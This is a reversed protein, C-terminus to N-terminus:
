GHNKEMRQVEIKQLSNVYVLKNLPLSSLVAMCKSCPKSCRGNDRMIFLTAGSLGQKAKTCAVIEAHKTDHNAGFAIVSGGRVLVAALKHHSHKGYRTLRLALAIWRSM